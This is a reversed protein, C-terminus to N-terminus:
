FMSEQNPVGSFNTSSLIGASPNHINILKKHEFAYKNSGNLKEYYRNKRWDYYLNTIGKRGVGKPKSKEVQVVLQNDEYPVGNQDILGVPPRWINIWSFAKRLTAQGGAAERAKPMEYYSLGTDKDKVLQQFSPHFSLFGHRKDGKCHKRFFTLEEEIALDQRGGNDTLALKHNLENWPEAMVNKFFSGTIKEYVRIADRLGAFSYTEEDDDAIAFHHNVWNLAEHFKKDDCYYDGSMYAPQGLYKHVLEMTIEEANGTEPSLIIGKQGQDIADNIMLEFIFESKGHTPAGQIITFSGDKISYLDDLCRFGTNNGRQVGNKRLDEVKGRISNISKIM